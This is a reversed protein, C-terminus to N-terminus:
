KINVEFLSTSKNLEYISKLMLQKKKKCLYDKAEYASQSDIWGQINKRWKM